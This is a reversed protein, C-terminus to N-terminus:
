PGGPAPMVAAIGDAAPRSGRQVIFAALLITAGGAVQVPSLGEHLLVAALAVGVVPEFLMLIGTRVGGIWRIGTLMLVSPVAAAFLGIGALLALLGPSSLPLLLAAAGEGAVTLATGIVASGALVVGIAVDARVTAYRRSTVFFTAQFAAAALSRFLM